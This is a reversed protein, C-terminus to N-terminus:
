LIGNEKKNIFEEKKSGIDTIESEKCKSQSLKKM